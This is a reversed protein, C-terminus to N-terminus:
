MSRHEEAARDQKSMSARPDDPEADSDTEAAPASVVGLLLGVVSLCSLITRAARM